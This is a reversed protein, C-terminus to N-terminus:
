EEYHNNGGTREIQWVKKLEIQKSRRFRKNLCVLCNCPRKTKKDMRICIAFFSVFLSLVIFGILTEM